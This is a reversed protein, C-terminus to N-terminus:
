GGGVYWDSDIEAMNRVGGGEGKDTLNSVTNEMSRGSYLNLDVMTSVMSVGEDGASMSSEGSGLGIASCRLWHWCNGM